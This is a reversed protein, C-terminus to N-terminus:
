LKDLKDNIVDIEEQKKNVLRTIAAKDKSKAKEKQRKLSALEAQLNHLEAELERRAKKSTKRKKPTNLVRANVERNYTIKEAEAKTRISRNSRSKLDPRIDVEPAKDPLIVSSHLFLNKHYPKYQAEISKHLATAKDRVEYKITQREAEDLVMTNTLTRDRTNIPRGSTRSPGNPDESASSGEGEDRTPSDRPTDRFDPNNTFTIVKGDRLQGMLVGIEKNAAVEKKPVAVCEQNLHWCRLCRAYQIRKGKSNPETWAEFIKRDAVDDLNPMVCGYKGYFMVSGDGFANLCRTCAHQTMRGKLAFHNSANTSDVKPTPPM